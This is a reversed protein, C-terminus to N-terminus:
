TKNNELLLRCVLHGRSQLESTHEESRAADNGQRPKLGVCSFAEVNENDELGPSQCGIHVRGDTCATNGWPAVVTGDPLWELFDQLLHRIATSQDNRRVSVHRVTPHQRTALTIRERLQDVVWPEMGQPDSWAHSSRLLLFGYDFTTLREVSLMRECDDM